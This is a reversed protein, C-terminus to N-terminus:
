VIVYKKATRIVAPNKLLLGTIILNMVLLPILQGNLLLKKVYM